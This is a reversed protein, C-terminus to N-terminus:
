ISSMHSVDYFLFIFCAKINCDLKKRQLLRKSWRQIYTQSYFWSVVTYWLQFSLYVHIPIPWHFLYKILIVGLLIDTETKSSYVYISLNAPIKCENQLDGYLLHYQPHNLIIKRIRLLFM